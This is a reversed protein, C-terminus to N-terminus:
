FIFCKLNMMFGSRLIYKINIFVKFILMFVLFSLVQKDTDTLTPINIHAQSVHMTFIYGTLTATNKILCIVDQGNKEVM